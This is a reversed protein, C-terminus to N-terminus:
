PANPFLVYSRHLNITTTPSPSDAWLAAAKQEGALDPRPSFPSEEELAELKERNNRVLAASITMKIEALIVEADGDMIGLSGDHMVEASFEEYDEETAYAPFTSQFNAFPM